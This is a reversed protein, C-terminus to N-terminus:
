EESPSHGFKRKYLKSFHFEDYFGLNLAIDRLKRNPYLPLQERAFDLKLNMQYKHISTGTAKHFRDSLTRVSIHYEDALTQPSFFQDSCIHFRHLIDKIVPDTYISERGSMELEHFLLVLLSSLIQTRHSFSSWYYEMIEMFLHEIRPHKDCNILKPIHYFHDDSIYMDNNKHRSSIDDASHECHLYINRMNPSSKTLSYHHLNPELILLQGEGVSYCVNEEWIDWTGSKIYLFDYQNLIRDPHYDGEPIYNINCATIRRKSTDSLHIM